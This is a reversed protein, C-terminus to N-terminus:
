RLAVFRWQLEESNAEQKESSGCYYVLRALFVLSDIRDIAGRHGPSLWRLVILYPIVYMTRGEISGDFLKAYGEKPETWNNNPGAIPLLRPM